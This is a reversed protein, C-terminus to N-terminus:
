RIKVYTIGSKATARTAEYCMTSVVRRGYRSRERTLGTARALAQKLQGVWRRLIFTADGCVFLHVHEPMVVYRGVAVNFNREANRAFEIM